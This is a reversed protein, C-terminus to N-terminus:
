NPSDKSSFSLGQMRNNHRFNYNSILTTHYTTHVNFHLCRRIAVDPGPNPDFYSNSNPDPDPDPDPPNSNSKPYSDPDPEPGPDPDPGPGPGPGPFQKPSVSWASM